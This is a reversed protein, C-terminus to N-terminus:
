SSFRCVIPSSEDRSFTPMTSLSGGFGLASSGDIRHIIEMMFRAPKGATRQRLIALLSARKADAKVVRRTSSPSSPRTNQSPSGTLGPAATGQGMAYFGNMLSEGVGAGLRQARHPLGIAAARSSASGPTVVHM